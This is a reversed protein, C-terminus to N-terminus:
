SSFNFYNPIFTKSLVRLEIKLVPRRVQAQPPPAIFGWTPWPCLLLLPLYAESGQMPSPARCACFLQGLRAHCWCHSRPPPPPLLPTDWFCRNELSPFLFCGPTGLQGLVVLKCLWPFRLSADLSHLYTPRSVPSWPPIQPMFPLHCGMATLVLHSLRQSLLHWLVFSLPSGPVREVFGLHQM